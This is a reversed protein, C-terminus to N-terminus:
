PGTGIAPDGNTLDITDNTITGKFYQPDGSGYYIVLKSNGLNSIGPITAKYSVNYSGNKKVSFNNLWNISTKTGDPNTISNPLEDISYKDVTFEDTNSEDVEIEVDVDVEGAKDKEVKFKFKKKGNSKKEEKTVKGSILKKEFAM